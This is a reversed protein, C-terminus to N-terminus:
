TPAASLALSPIPKRTTMMMPRRFRTLEIARAIRDGDLADSQGFRERVFRKGRTVHYPTLVADSAGRPLQLHPTQGSHITHL